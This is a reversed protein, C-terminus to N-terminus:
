STLLNNEIPILAQYVRNLIYKKLTIKKIEMKEMYHRLRKM